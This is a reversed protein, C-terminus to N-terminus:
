VHARGIKSSLARDAMRFQLISRPGTISDNITTKRGDSEDSNEVGIPITTIIQNDPREKEIRSKRNFVSCNIATQVVPPVFNDLRDMDISHDQIDFIEPIFRPSEDANGKSTLSSQLAYCIGHLDQRKYLAVASEGNTFETNYDKASYNAGM